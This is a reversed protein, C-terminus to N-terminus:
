SDGSMNYLVIQGIPESEEKSVYKAYITLVIVDVEKSVLQEKEWAERIYQEYEILDINDTSYGICLTHIFCVKGLDMTDEYLIDIIQFEPSNKSVLYIVWFVIFLIIISITIIIKKIERIIILKPTNKTEKEEVEHIVNNTISINRECAMLETLQVGLIEAIDSFLEVDPFCKGREWQSIASPSMGLKEALEKQTLGNERRMTAIFQGMSNKDM